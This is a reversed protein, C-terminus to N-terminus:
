LTLILLNEIQLQKLLLSLTQQSKELAMQYVQLESLALPM